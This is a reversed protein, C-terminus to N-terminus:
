SVAYLAYLGLCAELTLLLLWAGHLRHFAGREAESAPANADRMRGRLARHAPGVVLSAVLRSAAMAGLPLLLSGPPAARDLTVRAVLAAALVALAALLVRDVRQFVAAAVEEAQARELRAALVPAIALTAVAVGTWVALGLLLGFRSAVM